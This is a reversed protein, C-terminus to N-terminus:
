RKYRWFINRFKIVELKILGGLQISHTTYFLARVKYGCGLLEETLHSGIFGEAGTVLIKKM